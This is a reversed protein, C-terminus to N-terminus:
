KAVMHGYLTTEWAVQYKGQTGRLLLIIIIQKLVETTHGRQHLMYQTITSKTITSHHQTYKIIHM